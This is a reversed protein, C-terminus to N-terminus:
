LLGRQSTSILLLKGHRCALWRWTLGKCPACRVHRDYRAIMHWPEHWTQLILSRAGVRETSVLGVVRENYKGAM